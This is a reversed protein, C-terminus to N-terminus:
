SPRHPPDPHPDSPPDPSAAGISQYARLLLRANANLAGSHLRMRILAAAAAMALITFLIGKM